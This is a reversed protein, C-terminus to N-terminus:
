SLEFIHETIKQSLQKEIDIVWAPMDGNRLVMWKGSEEEMHFIIAKGNRVVTSLHYRPGAATEIYNFYFNLFGDPTRISSKFHPM